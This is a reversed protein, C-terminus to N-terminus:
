LKKGIFHIPQKPLWMQGSTRVGQGIHSTLELKSTIILIMINCNKQLNKNLPLLSQFEELVQLTESRKPLGNYNVMILYFLWFYPLKVAVLLRSFAPFMIAQTMEFQHRKVNDVIVCGKSDRSHNVFLLRRKSGKREFLNSITNLITPKLFFAIVYHCKYYITICHKKFHSGIVVCCYLNYHMLIWASTNALLIVM